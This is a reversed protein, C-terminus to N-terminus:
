FEPKLKRQSPPKAADARLAVDFAKEAWPAFAEPDDLLHEPVQWYHMTVVKGGKRQYHWPEMGAEEFDAFTTEDAKLRLVGDVVIAFAVNHHFIGLGGFMRRVSVSAFPAFLDELFEREM